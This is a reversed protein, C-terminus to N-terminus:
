LHESALRDPNFDASLFEQILPVPSRRIDEPSGLALFQGEHMMAMRDAIGFALDRDHTVVLSTVGTRKKLNLIEKGIVM